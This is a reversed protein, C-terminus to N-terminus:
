SRFARHTKSRTASGHAISETTICNPYVASRLLYEGLNRADPSYKFPFYGLGFQLWPKSTDGLSYQGEARTLYLDWLPLLSAAVDNYQRLSFSMMGGEIGLYARLRGSMAMSLNCAGLLRQQWVNKFTASYGSQESIGKIVEGEDLAVYGSVNLSGGHAPLLFSFVAILVLAFSTSFRCIGANSGSIM